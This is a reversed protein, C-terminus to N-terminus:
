LKKSTLFMRAKTLEITKEKCATVTLKMVSYKVPDDEKEPM